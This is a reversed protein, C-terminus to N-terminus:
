SRRVRSTETDESGNNVRVYLDHPYAEDKPSYGIDLKFDDVRHGSREAWEYIRGFSTAIEPLSGNHRYHVYSQAAIEVAEMGDPVIEVASVEAGILQVYTDGRKDLAIDMLVDDVRNPIEDCLSYLARWADPMIKWLGDWDAEVRIGIVSFAPLRVIEM